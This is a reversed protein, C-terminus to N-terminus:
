EVVAAFRCHAPWDRRYQCLLHVRRLMSHWALCVVMEDKNPLPWKQGLAIIPYQHQLWPYAAGLALLEPPRAPRLGLKQFELLVEETGMVRKFNALRMKISVDRSGRQPFNADSVDANQWDYNGARLLHQITETGRYQVVLSFEKTRTGRSSAAVVQGRQSRMFPEFAAYMGQFLTGSAQIASDAEASSLNPIGALLLSQIKQRQQPSMARKSSSKM